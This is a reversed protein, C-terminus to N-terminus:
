LMSVLLVPMIHGYDSFPIIIQRGIGALVKADSSHECYRLM